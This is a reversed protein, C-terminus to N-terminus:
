ARKVKWDKSVHDLFRKANESVQTKDYRPAQLYSNVSGTFTSYDVSEGLLPALIEMLSLRSEHTKKTKDLDFHVLFSGGCDLAREFKDISIDRKLVLGTEKSPPFTLAIVRPSAKNSSKPTATSSKEKKAIVKDDPKIGLSKLAAPTTLPHQPKAVPKTM